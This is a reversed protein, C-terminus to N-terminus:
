RRRAGRGLWAPVRDQAILAEVEIRPRVVAHRKGDVLLEPVLPRTNYTSAMVSGYAGASGFALLDGAKMPPLRRQVAFTDSTECVPGVVDVPRLAGRRRAVPLIEHYAGYLAPRLLDNMAADTVVFRRAAGDKVYIVRSVLLGAEGVISRGPELTLACGLDGVAKEAVRALASPPPPTEDRYRIGLGGGLDLRAVARGAARLERALIAVRGYARALPKLDTLQSGIHLALGDLRVQRRSAGAFLRRATAFDIGFKNEATGTTIKAHTGADVDPNVRLSVHPRKGLRRAVRDLADLEVDSEVNIQGVGRRLAYALEDDTKGVGSFVVRAAPIGAALARKLEGGSVVDAGAGERALVRLVAQNSNAKLAYCITAPLHAFADAYARYARRLGAASYVYFPTGTERALRELPVGEAHLTGNRITFEAM